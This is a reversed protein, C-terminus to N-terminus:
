RVAKLLINKMEFALKKRDFDAALKKGGDKLENYLQKNNKLILLKTVFDAENEPEFAL